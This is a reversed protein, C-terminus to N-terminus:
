QPRYLPGPLPLGLLKLGLVGLMFHEAEAVGIKVTDHDIFNSGREVGAPSGARCAPTM